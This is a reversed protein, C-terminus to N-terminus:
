KEAQKQQNELSLGSELKKLITEKQEPEPDFTLARRWQFRAEARRGVSWYIDGLHDNVVADNPMLEVAKELQYLADDTDGLKFLAWGLSDIIHADRPRQSLATEIM